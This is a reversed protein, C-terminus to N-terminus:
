QVELPSGSIFDTQLFLAAEDRNFLSLCDYLCCVSYILINKEFSLKLSRTPAHRKKNTAIIIQSLALLSKSGVIIGACL